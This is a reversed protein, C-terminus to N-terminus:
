RGRPRKKHGRPPGGERGPRPGPAGAKSSLVLVAKGGQTEPRASVFGEQKAFGDFDGRHEDMWTSFRIWIARAEEEPLARGDVFVALRSEQSM